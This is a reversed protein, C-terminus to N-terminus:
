LSDRDTRANEDQAEILINGKRRGCVKSLSQAM